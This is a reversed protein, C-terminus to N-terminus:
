RQCLKEVSLLNHMDIGAQCELSVALRGEYQFMPFIKCTIPKVSQITCGSEYFPCPMIMHEGKIHMMGRVVEPTSNIYTAIRDIDTQAIFVKEQKECRGCQRCNILPSLALALEVSFPIKFVATTATKTVM